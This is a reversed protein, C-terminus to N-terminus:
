ATDHPLKGADVAMLSALVADADNLKVTALAVQESAVAVIRALDHRAKRTNMWAERLMKDFEVKTKPLARAQPFPVSV